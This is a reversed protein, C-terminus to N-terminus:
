DSPRNYDGGPYRNERITNITDKLEDTTHPGILIYILGAGSFKEKKHAYDEPIQGKYDIITYIGESTILADDASLEENEVEVKVPGEFYEIIEGQEKSDALVPAIIGQAGAENTYVVSRIISSLTKNGAKDRIEIQNERRSSPPYTTEKWTDGGIYPLKRETWVTEGEKRQRDIAEEIGSGGANDRARVETTEGGGEYSEGKPPSIEVSEITGPTADPNGGGGSGGGGGGGGPCGTIGLSLVGALFVELGKRVIGYRRNNQLQEAM